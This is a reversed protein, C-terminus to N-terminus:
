GAPCQTAISKFCSLLPALLKQQGSLCTTVCMHQFAQRQQMYPISRGLAEKDIALSVTAGARLRGLLAETLEKDDFQYSSVEIDDGRKVDEVLQRWWDGYKNARGGSEFISEHEVTYLIDDMSAEPAAKATM